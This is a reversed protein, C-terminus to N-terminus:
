RHPKKKGSLVGAYGAKFKSPPAPPQLPLPFYGSKQAEAVWMRYHRYERAGSFALWKCTLDPRGLKCAGNAKLWDLIYNLARGKTANEMGRTNMRQGAYFVNHEANGSEIAPRWAYVQLFEEDSWGPPIFDTNFWYGKKLERTPQNKLNKKARLFPWLGRGACFDLSKLSYAGTDSITAMWSGIKLDMFEGVTKRFAPNDNRNGPFMTFHVALRREPGCYAYLIGPQYGVGLRKGIHRAFGADPDTYTGTEKDKNNNSNSRIFQGDWILVRPVIVGLNLGERVLQHFFEVFYSAPVQNLVFSIAKASPFFAPDRLVGGLPNGDVFQAVKEIGTYDRFGLQRRLMEFAVVDHLFIGRFNAGEAELKAQVEDFYSLDNLEFLHNFFGKFTPFSQLMEWELHPIVGEAFDDFTAQPIRRFRGFYPMRPMPSLEWRPMFDLLTRQAKGAPPTVASARAVYPRVPLWAKFKKRAARYDGPVNMDYEEVKKRGLFDDIQAQRITSKHKFKIVIM